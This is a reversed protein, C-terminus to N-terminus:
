YKVTKRITTVLLQALDEPLGFDHVLTPAELAVLLKGNVKNREFVRSYNSFRGDM